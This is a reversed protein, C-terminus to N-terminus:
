FERVVPKGEYWAAMNLVLYNWNQFGRNLVPEGSEPLYYEHLAGFRELDRGFLRITKEALERAEAKFGYDVLGRFVMYNSVGWIPGSWLSPNGSARVNYMKELKSLTRVGYPANFTETNKFHENVIRTAQEPTAVGAWLALFGSWVGLRQILCDYDRPYGSHLILRPDGSFPKAEFPLLNLDVSYFFGDREDWCHKQISEKLEDADRQYLTAIESMNLRECLYALARLEKYMLCNLYISGSSKPPRMYTAPDNDVGIATDDNWYYLGTAKHRQHNKYKNVFAQLNYLRNRLWEADGGNLQTLFAAHQALCPKHMNTDYIQTRAKLEKRSPSNRTLIIPVWGDMGGYDLYNLVSGQEYPLAEQRDEDSGVELLIQRLAVNSLWSDWDWLIDAYQESGPTIFPHAFAGGKERLMGRYDKHIAARIRTISQTLPPEEAYALTPCCLVALLVLSNKRLM